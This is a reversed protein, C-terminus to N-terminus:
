TATSNPTTTTTKSDQHHSKEKELLTLLQSLKLNTLCHLQSIKGSQLLAQAMFGITGILRQELKMQKLKQGDRM